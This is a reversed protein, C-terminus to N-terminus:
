DSSFASDSGDTRHPRRERMVVKIVQLRKRYVKYQDFTLGVMNAFINRIPLRGVELAPGRTRLSEHPTILRRYEDIFASIAEQGRITVWSETEYIGTKFIMQTPEIMRAEGYFILELELSGHDMRDLSELFFEAHGLNEILMHYENAAMPSMLPVNCNAIGFPNIIMWQQNAELAVNFELGLHLKGKSNNPVSPPLCALAVCASNNTTGVM